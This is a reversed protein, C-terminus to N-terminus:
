SGHREIVITPFQRCIVLLLNLIMKIMYQKIRHAGHIFEVVRFRIRVIGASERARLRQIANTHTYGHISFITHTAVGTTMEIECEKM